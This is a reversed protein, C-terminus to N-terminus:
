PPVSSVERIKRFLAMFAIKNDIGVCFHRKTELHTPIQIGVIFRSLDTAEDSGEIKEVCLDPVEDSGIRSIGEQV